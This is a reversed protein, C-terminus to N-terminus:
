NEWKGLVEPDGGRFSHYIFIKKARLLKTVSYQSGIITREGDIEAYWTWAGAARQWPSPWLRRFNRCAIGCEQQIRLALIDFPKM